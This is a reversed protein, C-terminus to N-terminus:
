NNELKVVSALIKAKVTSNCCPPRIGNIPENEASHAPHINKVNYEAALKPTFSFDNTLLNTLKKAKLPIRTRLTLSTMVPLVMKPAKLVKNNDTLKKPVTPHQYQDNFSSNVFTQLIIYIM